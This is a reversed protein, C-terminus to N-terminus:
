EIVLFAKLDRDAVFIRGAGDVSIDRPGRLEAGGPLQPGLQWLLQGAGDFVEITRADRDLVYLNGLDDVALAEPRRWERQMVRTREGGEPGFRLVAKSRRDLVHLRGLYDVALDVPESDDNGMLLSRYSAAEDYMLVQRRNSDLVFWQRHLGHAAATLGEVPKMESGDPGMFDQRERTALNLVSRRTAVYPQGTGGWWPHSAEASPVRDSLTGDPEVVAILPIGPDVIVVREGAVGIGEPNELQPGSFRLQRAAEWPSQSLSPRLQLRHILELRRRARGTVVPDVVHSASQQTGEDVVRQLIDAAAQWEGGRMLLTALQLRAVDTFGSHPEDEIAAVFHAAAVRSEGLKLSAEGAGLLAPARWVLVPFDARGYLLVASRYAERAAQLDAAGTSTATRIDGELVFAGAAGATRAYDAKLAAVASEAGARDRLQWRGSAVRLLADDALDAAPFQQVLLEYNRLAAELDGETALRGADAFLRVAAEPDQPASSAPPGPNGALLLIIALRAAGHIV